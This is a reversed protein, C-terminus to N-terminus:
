AVAGKAGLAGLDATSTGTRDASSVTSSLTLLAGITQPVSNCWEVGIGDPVSRVVFGSVRYGDILVDIRAMVPPLISTCIFAATFSANMIRGAGVAGAVCRLQVPVDIRM